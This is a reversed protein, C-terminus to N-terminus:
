WLWQYYNATGGFKSPYDNAGILYTIPSNKDKPEHRTLCKCIIPVTLSCPVPGEKSYAPTMFRKRAFNKSLMLVERDLKKFGSSKVVEAKKLSGDSDFGFSIEIPYYSMGSERGYFGFAHGSEFYYNVAKSFDEGKFEPWRLIERDSSIQQCYGMSSLILMPLM